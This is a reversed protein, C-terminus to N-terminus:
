FMLWKFAAFVMWPDTPRRGLRNEATVFQDGNAYSADYFDGLWVNAGRIELEMYTKIQWTLGLNVEVGLDNGGGNPEAQSMATAFTTSGILKHPIFARKATLCVSQLGFGMNSIDSVLPMYRNVVNGSPFLINTGMSIPLNGPAGWTNGTMVGSYRGDSLGNDDGSTYILDVILEDDDTHGYRYSYRLNAGLGGLRAIVRDPSFVKGFNYKAFGTLRHPGFAYQDNLGFFGGAWYAETTFRSESFNFRFTGTYETLLSKPGLGLISAGGQGNSRDNLHFLSGGVSLKPSLKKRGIVKALWVDDQLEIKNETLTYIGAHVSWTAADHRVNIGAADGAWYMLRYGTHQMRGFLTRYPHFPSDFMRMLGFNIAWGSSPIIEVQLNQTQINVFDSNFGAGQNGGSGYVADGWTWDIEFSGRLTVKSDMLRPTYIFFPLFRQEVFRTTLTDSTRATSRGFLRGIVQGQFFDNTPYFNSTVAQNFFYAIFTLEKDAKVPVEQDFFTVSTQSLSDSRDQALLWGGWGVLCAALLLTRIM